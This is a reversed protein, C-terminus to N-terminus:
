KIQPLSINAEERKKVIRGKVDEVKPQKNMM